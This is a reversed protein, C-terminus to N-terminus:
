REHTERAARAGPKGGAVGGPKSAGARPAAAARHRHAPSKAPAPTAGAARSSAPLSSARPAPAAVIPARPEAERAAPAPVREIQRGLTLAITSGAAAPQGAEPSQSVVFGAGRVSAVFGARALSVVADRLPAGDLDPVTVVGERPANQLAGDDDIALPHPAVFEIAPQAPAAGGGRSRDASSTTFSAPVVSAERPRDAAPPEIGAGISALDPPRSDGGDPAVGLYDLSPEAVRRFVPAAVDGGHYIPGRPEDLVILITLVPRRSPVFGAFSAVYRDSSYVKDIIKQATGTKGAVRYGPIAAKKGTGGTVVGELLDILTDATAERLVRHPATLSPLRVGRGEDEIIRTVVRPAVAMGRNAVTSFASALQLPTVGIEQGFSMYAETTAAWSKVPQLMGRSESPLDIGTRSGFGLQTVHDYFSRPDLRMAVKMVGVDSSEAMVEAFSLIGFARHDHIPIGAVRLIGNQCDIIESPRVVGEEIAAAATVIKFTSGPEYVDTVARNRRANPDAAGYHNPNFTPLSTMALVEGTPTHLVVITGAIAGTEELAAALEREATHQIVEDLSTVIDNGPVPEQRAQMLVHSGRADRLAVFAGPTGRIESDYRRELGERARPDDLGVFGLVHSALSGRPYFRKSEAILHLGQLNLSRVRDAIDPAVRRRVLPFGEGALKSRIVDRPVDLIPALATSASDVDKLEATAAYISYVDTSVALERGVRDLITGRRPDATVIQEQQRRALESMQRTRVVQLDYLTAAVFGAWVIGSIAVIWLRPRSIGTRRPTKSGRGPKRLRM